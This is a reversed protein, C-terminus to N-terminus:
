PKNEFIKTTRIIISSKGKDINNIQLWQIVQCVETSQYKLQM